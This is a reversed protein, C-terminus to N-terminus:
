KKISITSVHPNFPAHLLSTYPTLSTSQQTGMGRRHREKCHYAWGVSRHMTTHGYVQANGHAWLGTCQRTSMAIMAIVDSGCGRTRKKSSYRNFHDDCGVTAISYYACISTPLLLLLLLVVVVGERQEQWGAAGLARLAVPVDRLEDGRGAGRAPSAGCIPACLLVGGAGCRFFLPAEILSPHLPLPCPFPVLFPAEILSPPLPHPMAM